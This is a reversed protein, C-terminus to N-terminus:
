IGVEELRTLVPDAGVAVVEQQLAQMVQVLPTHTGGAENIATTASFTSKFM